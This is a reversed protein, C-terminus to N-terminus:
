GPPWAFSRGGLVHVHLHFVSQGASAGTNIVVRYGSTDIGQLKAVHKAALLLEGLIDKDEPAAASLDRLHKKPVVLIHTPARPSVDHFAIVQETEYVIKAPIEKRIIKGFITDNEHTM